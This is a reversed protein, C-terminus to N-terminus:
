LPVASNFAGSFNEAGALAGQWWDGPSCSFAISYPVTQYLNMQSAIQSEITGTICVSIYKSLEWSVCGCRRGM